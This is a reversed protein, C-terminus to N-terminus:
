FMEIEGPAGGPATPPAADHRLLTAAAHPLIHEALRNRVETLTCQALLSEIWAPVGDATAHADPDSAAAGDSSIDAVEDASRHQLNGLAGALTTLADKVHGLRQATRDQFQMGVIAASVDNSIKETTAANRRLVDAFRANQEVLCRMVMEIRANANLKEDSMDIAAIERLMAHSSGLGDSISAIQGRITSSLREVTRALERVEDAVVAFGRGAEGARAAEIKANLALLNTQRNIGDIQGVSAEVSRLADLVGDLSSLMSGGRSSMATIKNILDSLMSGLDKAVQPLPVVAGDIEVTQISTVLNQVTATQERATVVIDEFRESLGQVNGDVDGSVIDIEGILAELTLRQWRSLGIWHHLLEIAALADAARSAGAPLPEAIPPPSTAPAKSM